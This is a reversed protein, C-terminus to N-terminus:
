NLVKVQDLGRQTLLHLSFRPTRGRPFAALAPGCPETVFHGAEGAPHSQRQAPTSFSGGGKPRLKDQRTKKLCTPDGRIRGASHWHSGHKLCDREACPENTEGIFDWPTGAEDAPYPCAILGIRFAQRVRRHCSRTRGPGTKPSTLLALTPARAYPEGSSRTRFPLVESHRTSREPEHTWNARRTTGGFPM